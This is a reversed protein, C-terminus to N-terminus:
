AENFIYRIAKLIILTVNFLYKKRDKIIKMFVYINETNQWQNKIFAIRMGRMLIRTTTFVPFVSGSSIMIIKILSENYDFHCNIDYKKTLKRDTFTM